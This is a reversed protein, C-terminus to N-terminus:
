AREHEVNKHRSDKQEYLLVEKVFDRYSSAVRGDPDFKYISEGIQSSEEARISVPIEANYININQGISERLAQIIRKTNNTRPRVKTFLIGDIKLGPNIRHKVRAVSGMLLDLGKTSLYAAETPIIVSDAAALANISMLGLSPGCDIIIYDYQPKYVELTQRLITERSMAQFLALELGSLEINSPLLDVGEDTHIVGKGPTNDIGDITAMMLTALSVPLEDPNEVGLHNTASGQPDADVLLVSYGQAALGASLNVATTTKGVGGKQNTVAVTKCYSM